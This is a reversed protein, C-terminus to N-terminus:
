FVRKKYILDNFDEELVNNKCKIVFNQDFTFHHLKHSRIITRAQVVNFAEQIQATLIETITDDIM